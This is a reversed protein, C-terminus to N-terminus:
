RCGGCNTTRKITRRLEQLERAGLRPDGRPFVRPLDNDYELAERERKRWWADIEDDSLLSM